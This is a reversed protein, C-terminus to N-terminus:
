ESPPTLIEEKRKIDLPMLRITTFNECNDSICQYGLQELRDTLFLMSHNNKFDRQHNIAITENM